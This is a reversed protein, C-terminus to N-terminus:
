AINNVTDEIHPLPCTDLMIFHNITHSYDIVLRRKHNESRTVVVQARWPSNSPEIIGEKLLHQVETDIFERDIRNYRWSKTVIPHNDSTLNTFLDPPEVKLVSLGCVELPSQPGGHHFIISQHQKQFDLGLILDACLGPLISLRVKTYQKGGLTLNAMCFALTKASLSSQAMAINRRGPHKPLGLSEM